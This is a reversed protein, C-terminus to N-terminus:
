NLPHKCGSAVIQGFANVINGPGPDVIVTDATHDRRAKKPIQVFFPKANSTVGSATVKVDNNGPAANGAITFVVSIGTSGHREINSFTIGTIPVITTTSTFGDGDISVSLKGGVAGKEPTISVIKPAIAVQADENRQDCVPTCYGGEVWFLCTEWTATITTTGAGTGILQGGDVTAVNINNSNWFINPPIYPGLPTGNCSMDTQQGQLYETAGFLLEISSPLIGTQYVSDPCCNYCAYTSALGGSTSIQESRGSLTKNDAGKVSWAIQGTELGSPIVRGMSDPTQSDRLERFDVAIIQHPKIDNVGLSYQGGQYLLHVTYKRAADTENKIYVVTRFDGDAKWPFGGASSPTNM